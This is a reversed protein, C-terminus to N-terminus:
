RRAWAQYADLPELLGAVDDPVARLDLEFLESVHLNDEGFRRQGVVPPFAENAEDGRDLIDVLDDFAMKRAAAVVIQNGSAYAGDTSEHFRVFGYYYAGWAAGIIVLAIFIAIGGGIARSTGPM